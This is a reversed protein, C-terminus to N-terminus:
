LANITYGTVWKPGSRPRSGCNQCWQHIWSFYHTADPRNTSSSVGSDGSRLGSSVLERHLEDVSRETELVNRGKWWQM